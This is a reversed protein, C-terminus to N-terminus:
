VREARKRVPTRRRTGDGGKAAPRRARRAKASALALRAFYASRLQQARREREAAPLEGKPDAQREFAALFAARAKDMAAKADHRAHKAHAAARARLVRESPSLPERRPMYSGRLFSAVTEPSAFGCRM